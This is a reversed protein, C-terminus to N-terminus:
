LQRGIVDLLTEQSFEAKVVYASAGAEVGRRRDEPEGLSTVLVVPLDAFRDAGRIARCLEFGDLRPMHVDSVVVDAGHQLLLQWAEAGDAAAFVEYGAAELISRELTRTTLSDEALLIRARRPAAVPEAQRLAAGAPATARRLCAAPNLVLGGTGDPLIAVGLVEAVGALRAPAPKVVLELEGVLEDVALAAARDGTEVLVLRLNGPGVVDGPFGVVSALPAVPVAVGERSPGSTAPGAERAGGDAPGGDAPGGDAPGAGVLMMRGEIVHLDAPGVSVVRRVAAVPICVLEGAARVTLARLLTITVPSLITVTTGRAPSSELAVTGGVAEVRARVADLGVGRGSVDSVVEATSLGPEFALQAVDGEATARGGALAAARLADIDVGRGDDRVRVELLGEGVRASVEITGVEPKGRARREAPLEIGHDVANRVLHLLPERLNAIVARDLEVDGGLVDLRAQKGSAAALDRVTRALRDCADDFSRLTLDFTDDALQSRVRGLRRALGNAERALEDLVAHVPSSRPVDEVVAGLRTALEEVGRSSTALEGVRAALEDLKTPSVRTGTREGGLAGRAAGPSAGAESASAPLAGSLERHVAALADVEALLAAVQAESVTAGRDRSDALSEELRRAAVVAAPVDASHAAGKVGHAIRFLERVLTVSRARDAGEAELRLLGDTLARVAEDLEDVFLSRLREHLDARRPM